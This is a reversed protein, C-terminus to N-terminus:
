KILHYVGGALTRVVGRMELEFLVATLQNVPINSQTALMNLHLDNNAELTSVVAQETPTLDDFLHREIGQQRAKDLQSDGEWGMAKVFTEASTLLQAGNDRILNNCGASYPDGVRGPFAFVDRDYSRAIDATILGGGHDASEVLVCADSMGAVIRNRRVFNIKEAKTRTMFETLLGGQSVMARATERHANPYLDDLGHALVGVTELGNALAERHACIDIGYALGSVVLVHPCLATLDAIFSHILDTGYATSRRTGVINIVRRQNLDATGKYYLVLPADDCQALRHPYSDSSLDIASIGHALCFNMEEEARARMTGCDRLLEALRPSAGPVIDSLHNCNDIVATASGAADYLQRVMALNYYSLRALTMANLTETTNM